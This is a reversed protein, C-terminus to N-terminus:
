GLFLSPNAVVDRYKWVGVGRCVAQIHPPGMCFASWASVGNSSYDLSRTDGKIVAIISGRHDWIYGGQLSNLSYIRYFPSLTLLLPRHTQKCHEPAPHVHIQCLEAHGRDQM